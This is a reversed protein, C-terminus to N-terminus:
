PSHHAHTCAFHVSRSTVRAATHTSSYCVCAGAVVVASLQRACVAFAPREQSLDTPRRLTPSPELCRVYLRSRAASDRAADFACVVKDTIISKSSPLQMHDATAVVDLLGAMVYLFGEVVQSSVAVNLLGVALWYRAVVLQSCAPLLQSRAPVVLSGADVLSRAAVHQSRTLVLQSCAMAPSALTIMATLCM